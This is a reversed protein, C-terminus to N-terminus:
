YREVLYLQSSLLKQGISVLGERKDIGIYSKISSSLVTRDRAEEDPEDPEVTKNQFSYLSARLLEESHSLICLTGVFSVM